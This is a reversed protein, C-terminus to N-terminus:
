FEDVLTDAGPYPDDHLAVFLEAAGKEAEVVVDTLKVALRM